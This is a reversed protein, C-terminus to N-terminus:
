GPQPAPRASAIMLPPLGQLERARNCHPTGMEFERCTSSRQAYISCSVSKGIEGVLAICRAPQVETGRMAAHHPSVPVTLHHPVSGDPHADTEAWYFSVRFASCCAGCQQCPHIM